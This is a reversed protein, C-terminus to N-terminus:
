VNRKKELYALCKKQLIKMSIKEAASKFMQYCHKGIGPRLSKIVEFIEKDLKSEMGQRKTSDLCQGVKVAFDFENAFLISAHSKRM